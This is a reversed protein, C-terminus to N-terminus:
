SGDWVATKPDQLVKSGPRDGKISPTQIYLAPELIKVESLVRKRESLGLWEILQRVGFM